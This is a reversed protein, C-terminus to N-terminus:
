AFYLGGSEECRAARIGRNFDRPLQSLVAQTKLNQSEGAFTKNLAYLILSMLVSQESM